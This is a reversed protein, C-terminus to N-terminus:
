KAASVSKVEITDANATGTVTAQAGALKDLQALSEKDKADLTYVKSGSVLAYKSGKSVCAHTCAAADGPMAHKAGCMSDSVEGTFTQAKDAAWASATTLATFLMLTGLLISTKRLGFNM